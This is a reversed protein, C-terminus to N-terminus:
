TRDRSSGSCLLPEVLLGELVVARRRRDLHFSRQPCFGLLSWRCGQKREQRHCPPRSVHLWEPKEEQNGSSQIVSAEFHVRCFALVNSGCGEGLVGVLWLSARVTQHSLNKPRWPAAKPRVSTHRRLSWSLCSRASFSTRRCDGAVARRRRKKKAETPTLDAEMGARHEQFICVERLFHRPSDDLHGDGPSTPEPSLGEGLFATETNPSKTRWEGAAIKAKLLLADEKQLLRQDSNLSVWSESTVSASDCNRRLTRSSAAHRWSPAQGVQAVRNSGPPCHWQLLGLRGRIAGRKSQSASRVRVAQCCGRRIWRRWWSM